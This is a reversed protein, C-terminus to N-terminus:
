LMMYFIHELAEKVAFFTVAGTALVSVVSLLTM